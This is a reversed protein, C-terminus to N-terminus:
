DVIWHVALIIWSVTFAVAGFVSCIGIFGIQVLGITFISAFLCTIMLIGIFKKM